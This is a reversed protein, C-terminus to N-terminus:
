DEIWGMTVLRELQLQGQDSMGPEGYIRIIVRCQQYANDGHERYLSRYIPGNRETYVYFDDQLDASLVRYCVWRESNSFMGRYVNAQQLLVRVTATFPEQASIIEKWTMTGYRAYSDWDVKPGAPTDVLYLLRTENDPYLAQFTHYRLGGLLHEGHEELRDPQDYVAQQHYKGLHTVVEDPNRVYELREYPSHTSLFAEAVERPTAQDSKKNQETSQDKSRGLIFWMIILFVVLLLCVLILPLHRGMQAMFSERATLPKRTRHRERIVELSSEREEQLDEISRMNAPDLAQSRDDGLISFQTSLSRGRKPQQDLDIEEKEPLPEKEAPPPEKKVESERPPKPKEPSPPKAPESSVPPPEAELQFTGELEPATIM